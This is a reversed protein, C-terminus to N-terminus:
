DANPISSTAIAWFRVHRLLSRTSTTCTSAVALVFRLVCTSFTTWMRWRTWGGDRLMQEVEDVTARSVNGGALAALARVIAALTGASM